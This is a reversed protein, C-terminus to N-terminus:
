KEFIMHEEIGLQGAIYRAITQNLWNPQHADSSFVFRFRDLYPNYENKWDTRWAYRNNIEVYCEVPVKMLNTKMIFPHAIIVPKGTALLRDTGKYSATENYCHYIYYEPDLEIAKDISRHGDVEIGTRLNFKQIELKYKEFDVPEICEIHDSIGTVRAHNIGAIFEITQQPVIAPDTNSFVTHIHLDQNLM